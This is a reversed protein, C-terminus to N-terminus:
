VVKRLMLSWIHPDKWSSDVLMLLRIEEMWCLGLCFSFRFYDYIQDAKIICSRWGAESWLWLSYANFNQNQSYYVAHLLVWPLPNGQHHDSQSSKAMADMLAEAESNLGYYVVHMVVWNINRRFFMWVDDCWGSFCYCLKISPKTKIWERM